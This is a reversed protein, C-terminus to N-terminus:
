SCCLQLHVGSQLFVHYVNNDDVHTAGGTAKVSSDNVAANAPLQYRVIGIGSGGGGGVHINHITLAVVAVVVM